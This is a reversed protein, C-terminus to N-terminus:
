ASGPAADPPAYGFEALRRGSEEYADAPMGHVGTADVWSNYFRFLASVTIADFVAEESSGGARAAAVDERTVLTSDRNMKEILALLTKLRPPIPAARFDELM